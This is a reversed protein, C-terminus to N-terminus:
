STVKVVDRKIRQILGRECCSALFHDRQRRTGFHRWASLTSLVVVGEGDARALMEFYCAAWKAQSALWDLADEDALLGAGLERRRELRALYENKVPYTDVVPYVSIVIM